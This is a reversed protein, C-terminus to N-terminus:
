LPKFKIKYAKALSDIKARIYRKKDEFTDFVMSNAIMNCRQCCLVRNSLRNDHSVSFPIIHDNCFGIVKDMDYISVGCYVCSGKDRDILEQSISAGRKNSKNSM